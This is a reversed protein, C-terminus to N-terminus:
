GGCGTCIPDGLRNKKDGWMNPQCEHVRDICRLVNSKRTWIPPEKNTQKNIREVEPAIALAVPDRLRFDKGNWGIANLMRCALEYPPPSGLLVSSRGVIKKQDSSHRPGHFPRPIWKSQKYCGIDCKHNPQGCTECTRHSTDTKLKM